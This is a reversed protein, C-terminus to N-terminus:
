HIELAPFRNAFADYNAAGAGGLIAFVVETFAGALEGLLPQAFCDAILNPDNGFVGAGWAGLIIRDVHHHIAV